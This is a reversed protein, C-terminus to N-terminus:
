RCGRDIVGKPIPMLQMQKLRICLTVLTSCLPKPVSYVKIRFNLILANDTSWIARLMEHIKCFQVTKTAM